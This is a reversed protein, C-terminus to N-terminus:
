IDEKLKNIRTRINEYYTPAIEEPADEIYTARVEIVEPTNLSRAEISTGEYCPIANDDVITVEVLELDDIIRREMGDARTESYFSLPYFGFSWGRLKKEKAKAVVEPDSIEAVAYLGIADEILKLNSETNGITRTHDLMIDISSGRGIARAFTGPKIQEIYYGEECAIQRSDRGVANVYGEIHIVNNAIRVKLEQPNLEAKNMQPM